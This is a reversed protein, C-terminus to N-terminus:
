IAGFQGWIMKLLVCGRECELPVKYFGAFLLMLPHMHEKYVVATHTKKKKRKLYAQKKELSAHQYPPPLAGDPCM